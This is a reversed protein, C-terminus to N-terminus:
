PKRKVHNAPHTALRTGMETRAQECREANRLQLEKALRDTIVGHLPNRPTNPNRKPPTQM